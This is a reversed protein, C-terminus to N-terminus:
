RFTELGDVRMCCCLWQNCATALRHPNASQRLKQRSWVKKPSSCAVACGVHLTLGHAVDFAKCLMLVNSLCYTWTVMDAAEHAIHSPGALAEANAATDQVAQQTSGSAQVSKAVSSDKTPCEDSLSNQIVLVGADFKQRQEASM